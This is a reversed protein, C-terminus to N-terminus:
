IGIQQLNRESGVAEDMEAPRERDSGQGLDPGPEPRAQGGEVGGSGRGLGSFLGNPGLKWNNQRAQASTALSECLSSFEFIVVFAWADQM